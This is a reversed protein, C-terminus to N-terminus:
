PAPPSDILLGWLSASHFLTPLCSPFSCTTPSAFAALCGLLTLPCLSPLIPVCALDGMALFLPTLADAVPGPLLSSLRRRVQLSAVRVQVESPPLQPGSLQCSQSATGQGWGVSFKPARPPLSKAMGGKQGIGVSGGGGFGKPGQSIGCLFQAGALAFHTLRGGVGGSL